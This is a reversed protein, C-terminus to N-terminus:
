CHCCIEIFSSSLSRRISIVSSLLSIFVLSLCFLDIGAGKRVKSFATKGSLRCLM